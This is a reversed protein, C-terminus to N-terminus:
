IEVTKGMFFGCVFRAGCSYLKEACQLFSIGRTTIDDILLISKGRIRGTDFELNTVTNKDKKERSNNRDYRIRICELGNSIGTAETVEKLLKAFRQAQKERTSAPITCLVWEAMAARFFNGKLFDTLLTAMPLYDGGKFRLIEERHALDIDTISEEFKGVPYYDYCYVARHNEMTIERYKGGLYTCVPEWRRNREYEAQKQRRTEEERQKKRQKKKRWRVIAYVILTYPVLGFIGSLILEVIEM